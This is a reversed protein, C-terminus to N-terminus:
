RSLSRSPTTSGYAPPAKPLYTDMPALHKTLNKNALIGAQPLGYMGKQVEMYVYGNHVLPLLTYQVIIEPPIVNIPLRM